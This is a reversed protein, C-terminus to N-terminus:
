IKVNFLEQYNGAIAKQVEVVDVAKIAAIKDVVYKVYAPNNKKGRFPTPTLYPSDTESLLRSLPISEAVAVSFRANKFTLPGALSIYYGLQCFRQAMEASGSFCHIIGRHNKDYKSLINYTDEMADRSHIIVPLDYKNAIAIQKIFLEKQQNINDKTWYYDLGIEGVAIIEAKQCRENLYDIDDDSYLSACEPHLGYALDVRILNNDKFSLGWTLDEPSLCINLITGVNNNACMELMAQKDEKFESLHAHSDIYKM